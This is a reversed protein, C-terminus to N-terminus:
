DERIQRTRAAFQEPGVVFANPGVQLASAPDSPDVPVPHAYSPPASDALLARAEELKPGEDRGYEDYYGEAMRLLTALLDEQILIWGGEGRDLDSYIDAREDMSSV